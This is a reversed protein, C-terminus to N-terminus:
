INNSILIKSTQRGGSIGSTALRLPNKFCYTFYVFTNNLLFLTKEQQAIGDQLASAVSGIAGKVITAGEARLNSNQLVAYKKSGILKIVFTKINIYHGLILYRPCNM